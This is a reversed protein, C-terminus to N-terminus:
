INHESVQNIFYNSGEVMDIVIADINIFLYLESDSYNNINKFGEIGKERCLRDLQLIMGNAHAYEFIKLPAIINGTQRDVGRALSEIGVIKRKAVSIIPQYYTILRNDSIIRKLEKDEISNTQEIRIHM